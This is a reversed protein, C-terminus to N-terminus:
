HTTAFSLSKILNFSHYHKLWKQTSYWVRVLRWIKKSENIACMFNKLLSSFGEEQWTMGDQHCHVNKQFIIDM